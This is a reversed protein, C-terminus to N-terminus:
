DKERERKRIRNNNEGRGKKGRSANGPGRLVFIKPGRLHWPRWIARRRCSFIERFFLILFPSESELNGEVKKDCCLHSKMTYLLYTDCSFFPSEDDRM